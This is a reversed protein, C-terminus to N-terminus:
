RQFANFRTGQNTLTGRDGEAILGYESGSLQLELRSQDDFEFTVFYSTSASSNESGGWVKTRKTVVTADRRLVPSSNNRAWINIGNIVSFVIMGIIILPILVFMAKFILPPGDFGMPM